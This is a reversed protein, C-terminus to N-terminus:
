TYQVSARSMALRQRMGMTHKDIVRIVTQDQSFASVLGGSTSYAAADSADIEMMGQRPVWYESWDGFYADSTYPGAGSSAILQTTELPYGEFFKPRAKSSAGSNNAYGFGTSRYYYQGNLDKLTQLYKWFKHNFAWGPAIMSDIDSNQDELAAFFEPVHDSTFNGSLTVSVLGQEYKLGRPTNATGDDQFSARNMRVAMAKTVDNVVIRDARASAVRLMDNSIPVLAALKNATWSQMGIRPGNQNQIAQSEGIYDASSGSLIVPMSFNGAPMPVEVAGLKFVTIRPYLLEILDDLVVEPILYGGENPINASLDREITQDLYKALIPDRYTDHITRQAATRPDGGSWFRRCHAIARFVRGAVVGKGYRAERQKLEEPREIARSTGEQAAPASHLFGFREANPNRREGTKREEHRDKDAKSEKLLSVLERIASM